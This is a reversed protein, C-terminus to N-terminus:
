VESKEFKRDPPTCPYKYPTLNTSQGFTPSLPPVQGVVRALKTAPGVKPLPYGTRRGEKVHQCLPIEFPALVQGLPSPPPAPWGWNPETPGLSQAV